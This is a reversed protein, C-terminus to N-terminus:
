WIKSIFEKGWDTYDTSEQPSCSSAMSDLVKDFFSNNFIPDQHQLKNADSSRSGDNVSYMKRDSYLCCAKQFLINMDAGTFGNSKEIVDEFNINIPVNKIGGVFKLLLQRRSTASMPGVFMVKDFRGSRLLIEDVAWPENTAAMVTVIFEPGANSNWTAIDDLCGILTFILSDDSSGSTNQKEIDRSSFLAQFEDIFVVAPSQKKAQLFYNRILISSEGVSGSM